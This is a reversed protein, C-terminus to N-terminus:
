AAAAAAGAVAAADCAKVDEDILFVEDIGAFRGLTNRVTQAAGSLAGSRRVRNVVHVIDAGAVIVKLADLAHIYRALPVVEAAGVAVVFDSGKICAVTAQNRRPSLLDSTIEEDEELNFGVDIIIFDFRSVLNSLGARVKQPSLEPWRAPNVIGTFVTFEHRGLVVRHSLRASESEDLKGVEALRCLSLFGPIEDFLELYGALSGGYTDADVLGVRHGQLCLETAIGIATSSRGPAGTPGWVTVISGAM